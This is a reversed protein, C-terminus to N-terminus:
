NQAFFLTGMWSQLHTSENKPTIETPRRRSNKDGLITMTPRRDSNGLTLVRIWARRNCSEGALALFVFPLNIFIFKYKKLTNKVYIIFYDNYKCRLILMRIYVLM